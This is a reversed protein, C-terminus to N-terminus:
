SQADAERERQTKNGLIFEMVAPMSPDEVLVPLRGSRDKAIYKGNPATMLLRQTNNQKQLVYMYFVFDFFGAAERRLQGNLAPYNKQVGTNQDKDTYIHSTMITNVNPLDRFGRIFRRMRELVIGWERVSPVDPDRDPHERLLDAMVSNMCVKGIESLSDVVITKFGAGKKDYLESYVKAIQAWGTTRLVKCNPYTADLSLVGGEADLVLVPDFDEVASASGAFVTKGVGPEGYILINYTAPRHEIPYVQLGGITEPTLITPPPKPGDPKSEVLTSLDRQTTSM